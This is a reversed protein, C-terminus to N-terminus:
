HHDFMAGRNVERFKGPTTETVKKFVKNFYNANKYGILAAIEETSYKTNQLLEKAKNIRLDTLYQIPTRDTAQKFQRTFHYRSMGCAEAMDDPSIDESYHNKAYMAAEIITEPWQSLNKELNSCYHFLEMTFQYAFGSAQHANSIKKEAANELLQLLYRVPAADPPITLIPGIDDQIENWYHEVVDGYLTLYIFEWKDSHQPLFYRYNGPINVIFAHGATLPHREGNIEIAGEGSVTYQFIFKGTDRRNTGDWDYLTTSQEDWGLSWIQALQQLKPDSFRYGYSGFTPPLQNM